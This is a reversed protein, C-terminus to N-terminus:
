FELLNVISYKLLFFNQIIKKTIKIVILSSYFSKFIKKEISFNFFNYIQINFLFPFFSNKQRSIPLHISLKNFINKLGIEKLILEIIVSHIRNLKYCM